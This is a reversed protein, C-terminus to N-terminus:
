LFSIIDKLSVLYVIEGGITSKSFKKYESKKFAKGLGLQLESEDNFRDPKGLKKIQENVCYILAKNYKCSYQANDLITNTSFFFNSKGLDYVVIQETGAMLRQGLTKLDSLIKKKVNIFEEYEELHGNGMKFLVQTGMNRIEIAKETENLVFQASPFRLNCYKFILEKNDNLYPQTFILSTQNKGEFVVNSKFDLM